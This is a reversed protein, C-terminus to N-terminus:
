YVAQIQSLPGFVAEEVSTRSSFGLYRGGKHIALERLGRAYADFRETYLRRADEEFSLQLTAGTEIDEVELEGSWPPTRDEEAWVHLLLLEHGCDALYRLPRECEDEGLFDSILILIGRQPYAQAFERAVSFFRTNGGPKLGSLFEAAPAFRHRGGGCSLSEKLTEAFTQLQIAELRVLGVYSLAGALKRAFDFKETGAGTTMSSSTDILIRVPVRPEIQFMKLFLKELRMYARWNIARFDDGHHFHRHDLFEQGAGAFRSTNHGGVLGAFSKTWHITLRELRELFERDLLPAPM